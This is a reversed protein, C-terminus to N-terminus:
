KLQGKASEFGAAVSADLKHWDLFRIGRLEPVLNVDARTRATRQRVNSSLVSSRLMIEAIGPVPRRGHRRTLRRKVDGWLLAASSPVWEVEVLRSSEPMLDVALIRGVGFGEMVDVPLNNVTGGDVYLQGDLVIPPLVGPIAYSALLSKAMPGRTLVVETSRSYNAAVCYFSTWCDEVDILAGMAETVATETLNKARRGRSISVLPIWNFDGIPSGGTVFAKRAAEVLAQGRVEMAYWGGIVAGISTGGIVDIEIGAAEIANLVGIHALGRAGGGSLVVGVARGALLRSLRRMDRAEGRRVHIHRKVQRAALWAATGRPSCTGAKHVLVLTRDAAGEAPVAALFAEVASLAPAAGADALLVIEDALNICARTWFSVDADAAMLTVEEGAGGTLVGAPDRESVVRVSDGMAVRLDRLEEVFAAADLGQTVPVVCVTRPPVPKRRLQASKQGRSFITRMAEIAIHPRELLTQEFQAHSMRILTSDRVAVIRHPSAARSVFALEGITEGPGIDFVAAPKGADPVALARLRGQLVFHVDASVAGQEVLCEGAALEVFALKGSVTELFTPDEILFFDRLLTILLKQHMTM